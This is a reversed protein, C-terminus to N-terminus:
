VPKPDICNVWTAPMATLCSPRPQVANVSFAFSQSSWMTVERLEITGASIVELSQGQDLTVTRDGIHTQIPNRSMVALRPCHTDPSLDIKFHERSVGTTNGKALQLDCKDTPRPTLSFFNCHTKMPLPTELDETAACFCDARVCAWYPAQSQPTLRRYWDPLTEFLLSSRLIPFCAEPTLAPGPFSM